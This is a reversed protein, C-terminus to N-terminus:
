GDEEDGDYGNKEDGDEEKAPLPPPARPQDPPLTLARQDGTPEDTAYVGVSTRASVGIRSVTSFSATRGSRRSKKRQWAHSSRVDAIRTM